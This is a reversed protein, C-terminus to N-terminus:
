EADRDREARPPAGEDLNRQERRQAPPGEVLFAQEQAIEFAICAIASLHRPPQDRMEPLTACHIHSLSPSKGHQQIWQLKEEARPLTRKISAYRAAGAACPSRATRNRPLQRSYRGIAAVLASSM